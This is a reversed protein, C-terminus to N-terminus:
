DNGEGDVNQWGIDARGHRRYKHSKEVDHIQYGLNHQMFYRRSEDLGAVIVARETILPDRTAGLEAAMLSVKSLDPKCWGDACRRIQSAPCIDCLERIGYHGNYDKQAHVFSVACSTKRFLSINQESSGVFGDLIRGELDEPLIKRRAVRSYPEPLGHERYYNAIEDRYFLGTFVTAHASVALNRARAIHEPSDNLGPVIPRWYLICRYRRSHEFLTKLSGIALSSDVPEVLADDIGSYTVLVTLKINKFSNLVVCDSSTVKWRTIVLVHNNIGQKDLLELVRFTHPKVSSLFPDTARNFLQIPTVNKRFYSHKLLQEVAAEDTLLARPVKMEFNSFLHRVCYSCDLPCGIIHNLSLGSKRYEIVDALEPSLLAKEAESLISLPREFTM